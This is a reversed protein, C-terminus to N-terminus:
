RNRSAGYGPTAKRAGPGSLGTTSASLERVAPRPRSPRGAKNGGLRTPVKRPVAQSSGSRGVVEARHNNPKATAAHNDLPGRHSQMCKAVPSGHTGRPSPHAPTGGTIAAPSDLALSLTLAPWPQNKHPLLKSQGGRIRRLREGSQSAFPSKGVECAFGAFMLRYTYIYIYRYVHIYMYIQMYKYIPTNTKIHKSM